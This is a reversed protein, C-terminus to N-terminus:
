DTDNLAGLLTDSWKKIKPRDDFWYENLLQILEYRVIMELRDDTMQGDTCFYSHGIRFGDGLSEDESIEKNLKKVCEILVRFKKSGSREVMGQFGPSDFAPELEYFAFRRRLAYDIMALSRDATNMLGIIHVNEPVSFLENEYLIRLKEGRKDREILMLLEGFIKSLNGRNIEDIIFFYDREIDDQARKCFEYFPGNVLKFSSETPRFGRIFDEYSYSQHFQVMEVRSIDKVGLISYALRKAIYTKGVGPAGQLIINKKAKLLEVLMEYEEPDIFVERLFDKDLYGEYSTEEEEEPEEIPDEGDFLSEIENVYATYNTVDTLTKSAAQGPHKWEGAHTWNVRRINKFEKREPVYQLDSEVIGRGILKRVGRKVFVVDGEQVDHTFQWAGLSDNTHPLNEGYFEKLKMRMAERNPYLSLDGLEDWGVGMIGESHFEIWLRAGEGPSYLWYHKERPGQGPKESPTNGSLRQSQNVKAVIEEAIEHTMEINKGKDTLTWIGRVSGDIIGDWVLYQRAWHVENGFKSVGSKYTKETVSSPLNLDIVIRKVVDKPKASGGLNKLANVIPELWDIIYTWPIVEEEKKPKASDDIM